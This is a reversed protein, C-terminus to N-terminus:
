SDLPPAPLPSRAQNAMAKAWKPNLLKSRYEMRLVGELEVPRPEGGFAEVISCGVRGPAKGASKRASEAAAVLAGTNAFYEQLVVVKTCDFCLAPQQHKDRM